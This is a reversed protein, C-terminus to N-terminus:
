RWINVGKPTWCQSRHLESSLCGRWFRNGCLRPDEIGEFSRIFIDGEREIPFSQLAHAVVKCRGSGFNSEFPDLDVSRMTMQEM